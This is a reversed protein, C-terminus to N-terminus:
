KNNVKDNFLRVLAARSKVETKKYIGSIYRELTRKSIFLNDAITQLNDDTNVLCGFVEAERPTFSYLESLEHLRSEKDTEGSSAAAAELNVSDLTNSNLTGSDLSGSQLSCSYLLDVSKGKIIDIRSNYAAAVLIVAVFLVLVMVIIAIGNGSSLLKLSANAILAATINNVARGLGAWLEPTNMYCALEMFSTTFFVAFFGASIYFMVLGTLFSGGLMPVAICLTSLIMVCYMSLFMYKRDKFDYIFGAALGSLALLIRPWQGIDMTGAAHELTVANDLTSFICTMLVILLVMLLGPVLAKLRHSTDKSDPLGNNGSIGNGAYTCNIGSSDYAPIEPNREQWTISLLCILVLMFASLLVAEITDSNVLNNNAFQLLIGLMYSVGVTRALYRDNKLISMATYFVCSGTLGLFLFLIFGSLITIAYSVHQGVVIICMVSVLASIISFPIRNKKNIIRRAAPYLLFGVTSIGLAYNQALVTREKSVFLAIMNDYLYEAGLFLFTFIGMIIIPMAYRSRDHYILPKYRSKNTTNKM